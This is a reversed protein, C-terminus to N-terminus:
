HIFAKNGFRSYYLGLYIVFFFFVQFLEFCYSYYFYHLVNFFLSFQMILLIDADLEFGGCHVALSAFLSALQPRIASVNGGVPRTLLGM